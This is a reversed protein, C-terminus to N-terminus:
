EVDAMKDLLYVRSNTPMDVLELYNYVETLIDQLAMGKVTKLYSVATKLTDHYTLLDTM